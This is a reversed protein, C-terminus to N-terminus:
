STLANRECFEDVLTKEKRSLTNYIEQYLNPEIYHWLRLIAQRDKEQKIGHERNIIMKHLLYAEPKPVTIEMNYFSITVANALLISMHRLSQATVGLNTKLTAETGAGVKNILFEIEVGRKDYIKTAGTLYDSEVLYGKSKALDTLNVPVAPKRLKKLLFDVELTKINPEFGKLLGTQQYLFEAWSGILIVHSLCKHDNLLKVFRLFSDSQISMLIIM